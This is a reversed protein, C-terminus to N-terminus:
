TASRRPTSRTSRCRGRRPRGSAPGAEGGSDSRGVAHRGALPHRRHPGVAAVTGLRREARRRRGSFRDRFRDLFPNFDDYQVVFVQHEPHEANYDTLHRALQLRIATKGSGKEGFVVATAPESPDGYIKDWTPHFTNRICAGKFVLDTQADEDAFPNAAIGHHDLFQQIKMQNVLIVIIVVLLTIVVAATAVIAFSRSGGAAPTRPFSYDPNTLPTPDTLATELEPVMPRSYLQPFVDGAQRWDRWGERWVLTDTGVRGEALWTRMIDTKAPGFQGGSAPRVYWVVEDVGALPDSLQRGRRLAGVRGLRSDRAVAATCTREFQRWGGRCKGRPSPREAIRSSRRTSKQPIQMKAGCFPCIGTLGAQFPKVNLKHGNPCYFRIGM